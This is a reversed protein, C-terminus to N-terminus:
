RQRWRVCDNTTALNSLCIRSCPAWTRGPTVCGVSPYGLLAAMVALTILDSDSTKPAIGMGPWLPRREPHSMLLDDVRVCLATTLIELDADV